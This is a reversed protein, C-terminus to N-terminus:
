RRDDDDEDTVAAAAGKVMRVNVGNVRLRRGGGSRGCAVCGGATRM